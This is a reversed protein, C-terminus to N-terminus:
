DVKVGHARLTTGIQLHYRAIAKNFDSRARLESTEAEAVKRQLELVEFVTGIGAILRAEGAVLSEKALRNAETTAAIRQRTTSVQGAANDVLVVIEQELRQLNVLSEAIDIQASNVRSRAERNGIPISFTAGTTWNTRDRSGIRQASTGFDDDIGNLALSATLDLRPLTSNKEVALSIRRSELELKAQRYDPRLELAKAIGEVVGVVASPSTPPAIEVRTGILPIMDRTLLQKLFNEQDKVARQATIVAEERAAVEAQAITVDLPTRVGVEMRKINDRLTQSALERNRKAVELNEHSFNLDNYTEIVDTIVSMVQQKVTWESSAVNNRAVRIGALNVATGAGRLLPQRLSFSLGTDQETEPTGTNRRTSAGVDYGLGWVTVGSVGTSWNSNQSVSNIEFHRNKGAADRGFSDRATAEGRTYSFDFVPDFKAKAQEVREKASKPQLRAIEITFNKKLAMQIAGGLDVSLVRGGDPSPEGAFATVSFIVLAKRFM